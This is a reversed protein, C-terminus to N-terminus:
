KRREADAGTARLTTEQVGIEATEEAGKHKKGTKRKEEYLFAGTKRPNSKPIRSFMNLGVTKLRSLPLMHLTCQM